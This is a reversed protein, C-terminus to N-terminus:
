IEVTHFHKTCRQGATSKPNASAHLPCKGKRQRVEYKIRHNDKGRNTCGHFNSETHPNAKVECPRDVCEYYQDIKQTCMTALKPLSAFFLPDIIGELPPILLSFNWGPFPRLNYGM